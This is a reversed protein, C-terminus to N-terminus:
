QAKAQRFTVKTFPLMQGVRVSLTGNAVKMPKSTSVKAEKDAGTEGDIRKTEVIAVYSEGDSFGEGRFDFRSHANNFVMGDQIRAPIKVDTWATGGAGSAYILVTFEQRSRNYSCLRYRESGTFGPGNVIIDNDVEGAMAHRIVEDAGGALQAYWRWIYYHLHNPDSPNIFNEVTYQHGSGELVRTQAGAGHLTMKRTVVAPGNDNAPIVWEPQSQAVKGTVDRRKTLGMAWGSSNDSWPLNVSCLGRELCKGIITVAKSYADREDKVGDGNVDTANGANDWVIWSEAGMVQKGFHGAADLKEKALDYNDWCSAVYSGDMSGYGNFHDSMNINIADVLSMLEAHGAQREYFLSVAKGGKVGLGEITNCAECPSCGSTSIIVERTPKEAYVTRIARAGKVFIENLLFEIDGDRIFGGLNAEHQLQYAGVRGKFHRAIRTVFDRYHNPKSKVGGAQGSESAWAPCHWFVFEVQLGEAVCVDVAEEIDALYTSMNSAYNTNAAQPEAARWSVWFQVYSSDEAIVARTADFANVEAQGVFPQWRVGVQIHDTSWAYRQPPMNTVSPTVGCAPMGSTSLWSAIVISILYYTRNTM